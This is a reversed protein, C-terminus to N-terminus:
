SFLDVDVDEELREMVQFAEPELEPVEAEGEVMDMEQDVDWLLVGDLGRLDYEFRVCGPFHEFGEGSEPFPVWAATEPATVFVM